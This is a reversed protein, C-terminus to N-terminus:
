QRLHVRCPYRNRCTSLRKRSPEQDPRHSTPTTAPDGFRRHRKSHANGGNRLRFSHRVFYRFRRGSFFRHKPCERYLLPNGHLARILEITIEHPGSGEEVSSIGDKFAVAPLHAQNLFSDFDNPDTGLAFEQGDSFGDGDSDNRTPSTLTETAEFTDSLGDGDADEATASFGVIRYFRRELTPENISPDPATIVYHNSDAPTETITAALHTGWTTVDSSHQLEFHTTEGDPRLDDFTITLVGGSVQFTVPDILQNIVPSQQAQANLHM